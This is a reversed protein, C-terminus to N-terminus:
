WRGGCSTLLSSWEFAVCGSVTYEMAVKEADGGSNAAEAPAAIGGQMKQGQEVWEDVHKRVATQVCEAGNEVVGGGGPRDDGARLAEKLGPTMEPCRNRDPYSQSSETGQRPYEKIVPPKKRKRCDSCEASKSQRGQAKHGDRM